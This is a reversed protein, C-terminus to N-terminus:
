VTIIRIFIWARIFAWGGIRAQFKKKKYKQRLFVLRGYIGVLWNLFCSFWHFRLISGLSSLLPLTINTFFYFVKLSINHVLKNNCFNLRSTVWYNSTVTVTRASQVIESPQREIYWTENSERKYKWLYAISLNLIAFIQFPFLEMFVSSLTITRANQM